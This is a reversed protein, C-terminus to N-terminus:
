FLRGKARRRGYGAAAFGFVCWAALSGPEPVSTIDDHVSTIFGGNQNSGFQFTGDTVATDDEVGLVRLTFTDVGRTFPNHPSNGAISHNADYESQTDLLGFNPSKNFASLNLGSLTWGSFTEDGITVNGDIRLPNGLAPSVSGDGDVFVVEGSSDIIEGHDAGGSLTISLGTLVQGMNRLNSGTNMLQITVTDHSTSVWARAGVPDGATSLAGAHTDLLFVGAHATSAKGWPAAILLAGVVALKNLITRM